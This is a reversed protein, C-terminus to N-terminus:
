YYNKKHDPSLKRQKSSIGIKKRASITHKYGRIGSGGNTKNYGFKKNNSKFYKIWYKEQNNM